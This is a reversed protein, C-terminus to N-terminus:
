KKEGLTIYYLYVDGIDRIDEIYVNYNGHEFIDYSVFTGYPIIRKYYFNRINNRFAFELYSKGIEPMKDWKDIDIKM